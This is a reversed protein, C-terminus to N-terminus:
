WLISIMISVGGYAVYIRHFHGPQFAPIIGYLFLIFGGIIGLIWGKDERIWLWVLYGGGIECIGALLFLAITKSLVRAKSPENPSYATM